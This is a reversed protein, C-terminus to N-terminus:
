IGFLDCYIQTHHDPVCMKIKQSAAYFTLNIIKTQIPILRYVAICIDLRLCKSQM